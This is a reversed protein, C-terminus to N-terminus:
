GAADGEPYAMERVAAAEARLRGREERVAAVVDDLPLVRVEDRDRGKLEVGGQQLSRGSLTLRLPVGILDADAFKVGASQHRDDYLVDVDAARLAAYLADAKTAADPDRGALLVLHVDFPTVAIPWRLGRDDHHVEAICAMLRGVGIGYSGMVIPRNQGITIPEYPMPTPRSIAQMASAWWSSRPRRQGIATVGKSTCM